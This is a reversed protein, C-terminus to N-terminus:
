AEEPTIDNLATTPSRNLIYIAWNVAEPWFEKPVERCALMSRVMDM